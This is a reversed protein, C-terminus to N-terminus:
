SVVAATEPVATRRTRFVVATLQAVDERTILGVMLAFLMYAAIMVPMAAIPPLSTVRVVLLAGMGAFIARLFDILSGRDLTAKPILRLAACILVLEGSAFALM